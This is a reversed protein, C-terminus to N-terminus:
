QFHLLDQKQKKNNKQKRRKIFTPISLLFYYSLHSLFPNPLKSIRASDFLPILSYSSYTCIHNQATLQTEKLQRFGEPSTHSRESLFFSFLFFYSSITKKKKRQSPDILWFIAYPKNNIKSFLFFLLFNVKVHM